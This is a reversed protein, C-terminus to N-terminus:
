PKKNVSATTVRVLTLAPAVALSSLGVDLAGVGSVLVLIFIGSLMLAMLLGDFLLSENSLVLFFIIRMQNVLSPHDKAAIKVVPKIVSTIFRALLLMNTLVIVVDLFKVCLVFAPLLTVSVAVGLLIGVTLSSVQPGEMEAAWKRAVPSWAMGRGPGGRFDM